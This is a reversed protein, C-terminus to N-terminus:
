RSVVMQNSTFNLFNRVSFRPNAPTARRFAPKQRSTFNLFNRDERMNEVEGASARAPRPSAASPQMAASHVVRFGVNITM